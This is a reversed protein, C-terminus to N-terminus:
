KRLGATPLYHTSRGRGGERLFGLEVLLGLERRAVPYSVEFLERYDASRLKSRM